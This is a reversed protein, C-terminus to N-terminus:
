NFYKDCYERFESISIQHVPYREPVSKEFDHAYRVYVGLDFPYKEVDMGVFSARKGSYSLLTQLRDIDAMGVSMKGNSLMTMLIEDYQPSNLLYDEAMDAASESNFFMWYPVTGTKLTLLPSLINFSEMYLRNDPQNQRQYMSRYIDAVKGSADQPHDFELQHVEFGEREALEQISELLTDEFGWEAEPRIEDPQPIDWKTVDSGEQKLFDTVRQSGNYYEDPDLTGLGGFQFTHRPGIRIVPWKLSSRSVIITGGPELREKFFNLYGQALHIMKIRFYAIDGSRTRDQVPDMMQSLSWNPNHELFAPAHEKSWRITDKPHDVSFHRGKKIPILFTQPLWPIGALAYLHNFAGNSSGIAIAPFKKDPHIDCIWQSIDDARIQGIKQYSTSDIKGGYGYLKKRWSVPFSNIVHAYWTALYPVKLGRFVKGHLFMNNANVMDSASDFRSLFKPRM